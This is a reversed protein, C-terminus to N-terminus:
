RSEALQLFCSSSTIKRFRIEKLIILFSSTIHETALLHGSVILGSSKAGRVYRRHIELKGEQLDYTIDFTKGRDHRHPSPHEVKPWFKGLGLQSREIDWIMLL